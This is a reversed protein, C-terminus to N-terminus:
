VAGMSSQRFESLLSGVVTFLSSFLVTTFIISFTMVSYKGKNEKVSGSALKKVAKKSIKSM